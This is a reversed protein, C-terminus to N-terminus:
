FKESALHIYVMATDVKRIGGFKMVSFVNGTQAAVETLATHRSTHFSFSKNIGAQVAATKLNQNDIANQVPPSNKQDFLHGDGRLYRRIREGAVGNFYLFAPNHVPAEVKKMRQLEVVLGKGSEAEHVQRGTLAYVDSFRLATGCAILFRDVSAQMGPSKFRQDALRAVEGPTLFVKSTPAKKVRFHLYPNETMEGERILANITRKMDKHYKAITNTHLGRQHLYHDFQKIANYDVRSAPLPGCVQQFLELQHIIRIKSDENLKSDFRLSRRALSLFDGTEQNLFAELKKKTLQQGANLLQLEFTEMEEIQSQILMNLRFYNTHKRNVQHRATDWQEPRITIGTSIFKRENRSFYAEIQILGLGQSNLGKRAFVPRFKTKKM